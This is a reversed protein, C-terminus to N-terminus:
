IRINALLSPSIFIEYGLGTGDILFALSTGQLAVPKGVFFSYMFSFSIQQMTDFLWLIAIHDVCELCKRYEINKEGDDIIEPIHTERSFEYICEFFITKRSFDM